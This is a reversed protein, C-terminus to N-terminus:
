LSISLIPTITFSARNIIEGTDPNAIGSEPVAKLFTEREKLKATLKEIESKLSAYVSDQCNDYQYNKRESFKFEAGYMKVSKGHKSLENFVCDRIENDARIAKITEEIGKLIAEIYLPNYLGSLIENKAKEVFSGREDKSIPMVTLFSLANDM